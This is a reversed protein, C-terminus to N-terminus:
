YINSNIVFRSAPLSEQDTALGVEIEDGDYSHMELAKPDSVEKECVNIPFRMINNNEERSTRRSEAQEFIEHLEGISNSSETRNLKETEWRQFDTTFSPRRLTVRGSVSNRQRVGDKVSDHGTM